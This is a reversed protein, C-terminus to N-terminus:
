RYCELEGTRRVDLTACHFGGGITRDHSLQLPLVDIGHAEIARILATQRRDVIALDPRVMLVNMGIWISSFAHAGPPVADVLEPCWVKDWSAFYPPLNTDDVRAPNLLVLGPRLPVITTDVHDNIRLDRCVHVTFEPGLTSQLWRAGKENASDSVYYLLDTGLRVVNAADFCPEHDLLRQGEPRDPDYLEDRLRPRPAAIWRAGSEFYELALTRLSLAKLHKARVPLPVEILLDGVVLISDRPCYEYFGDTEWDPTALVADPDVPDPRRVTVGLAELEECLEALEAETQEIAEPPFPGSPIAEPSGCEHFHVAFLGPDPRPIRAGRASGVVIEELPDWENYARVRGAESTAAAPSITAAASTTVNSVALLGAHEDENGSM